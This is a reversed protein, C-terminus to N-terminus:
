YRWMGRLILSKSNRWKSRRASHESIHQQIFSSYCSFNCGESNPEPADMARREILLCISFFQRSFDKKEFLRQLNVFPEENIWTTSIMLSNEFVNIDGCNNPMNLFDMKNLFSQWMFPTLVIGRKTPYVRGSGDLKYERIHIRVANTFDFVFVYKFSGLHFHNEPVGDSSFASDKVERVNQTQAFRKM